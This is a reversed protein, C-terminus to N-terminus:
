VPTCCTITIFFIVGLFLVDLLLLTSFVREKNGHKVKGIWSLIIGVPLAFDAFIGAIGGGVKWILPILFSFILGLVSFVISTVILGSPHEEPVVNISCTANKDTGKVRCKLTGKVLMSSTATYTCKQGNNSVNITGLADNSLEWAIEGHIADQPFLNCELVEVAGNQVSVSSKSLSISQLTPKVQITIQSKCSSCEATITVRGPALAVIEGTSTVLLVDSDSSTWMLTNANEANEPMLYANIRAKKGVEITSEAVLLRISKVLTHSIARIQKSECIMGNRDQITFNFVGEDSFLIMNRGISVSAPKDVSLKFSDGASNPICFFRYPVDDGVDAETRDLEFVYKPTQKSFAEIYVRDVDNLTAYRCKNFVNEIYPLIKVYTQYYECFGLVSKEPIFVINMNRENRIEYHDALVVVTMGRLSNDPVKSAIVFDATEVDSAVYGEPLTCVADGGVRVHYDSSTNLSYREDLEKAFEVAERVPFRLAVPSCKVSECYASRKALATMLDILFPDARLEIQYRDNIESDLMQLLREGFIHMDKSECIALDSYPSISEDDISILPYRRLPEYIIKVNNM